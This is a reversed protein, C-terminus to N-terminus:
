APNHSPNNTDAQQEAQPLQKLVREKAQALSAKLDVHETIEINMREGYKRPDSCALYYKTSEFKTKIKRHDIDPNDEVIYRIDDFLEDLGLARARSLTESFPLYQQRLRVLTRRACGMAKAIENYGKGQIAAEIGADYNYEPPLGPILQTLPVSPLHQVENAM